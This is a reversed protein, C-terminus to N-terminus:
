DSEIVGYLNDEDLDYDSTNYEGIELDPSDDTGLICPLVVTNGDLFSIKGAKITNLIENWNELLQSYWVKVEEIEQDIAKSSLDAIMLHLCAIATEVESKGDTDLFYNIISDAIYENGSDGIAARVRNTSSSLDLNLIAM